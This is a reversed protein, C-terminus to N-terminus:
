ASPLTWPPWVNWFLTLDIRTLSEVSVVCKVQAVVIGEVVLVVLVVLEEVDVLWDGVVVLVDEVDVVLVVLEDDV